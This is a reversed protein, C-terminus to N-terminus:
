LYHSSTTILYHSSPVPHDASQAATLLDKIIRERRSFAGSGLDLDSAPSREGIDRLDNKQLM